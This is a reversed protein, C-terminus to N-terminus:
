YLSVKKNLSSNVWYHYYRSRWEVFQGEELTYSLQYLVATHHGVLAM